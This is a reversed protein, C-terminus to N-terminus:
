KKSTSPKKNALRQKEISADAAISDSIVKAENALQQTIVKGEATVEAADRRSESTETNMQQKVGLELQKMQIQARLRMEEKKLEGIITMEKERLSAELEMQLQKEKEQAALMAAESAGQNNLQIKQLENKQILEKAKKVRYAWIMQAQKANHTNVLMVADSSDLYGNQIDAQMQQLLWMKQDDTTKAEIMIGYDRNAIDPNIEIFRLTNENLARAYGSIGGKKIGQQTRCLVDEALRLTLTEESFALPYLADKTSMNAIEYGPVLTKPNPNGMTVDNYGTIKEIAMIINLLDQYFMALESAATNEIPIVPQSNQFLPQGVADLSRGVMVGTQFFMQLLEKPTMNEGGKNLAVNELADLNFWWGSPVARNKFNEIKLMTKQYEDLYPILAEMFGQAKMEYFNYAFFKYPLSTKAKNKPDNARKQDYCMGWDYCYETGIIWKCKYVYQYTKRKYRSNTEKGKNYDERKFVPNGNTDARDTYTERNYTYFVIDLVQCKFKDYQRQGGTGFGLNGPNGFKNTISSAFELLQRDTFMQKGDTDTITALEVLPVDIIEGAHILDSFDSNRCYNIIVRRPDVKRFKPKNDDGLWERYGSLGFDFLDEYVSRRFIKYNNEYLALEIALEADKSRNFQEGLSMRMELEETDLPEGPSLSILPHSALEENVGEIMKRVMLKAKIDSYYEKFESQALMDVPVAVIRKEDKMLSSITKNRYPTIISRVSWDNVLWTNGTAMDVGHLQKYQDVPQKGLAYMRYKDYDGGNNSFVGKPCVFDWDYLAARSYARCWEMGKKDPDINHDPYPHSSGQNMAQYRM